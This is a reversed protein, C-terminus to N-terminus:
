TTIGVSSDNTGDTVERTPYVFIGVVRSVINDFLIPQESSMKTVKTMHITAM